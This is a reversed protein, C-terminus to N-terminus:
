QAKTATAPPRPILVSLRTGGSIAAEIHLSGGVTLMREELGILGLSAPKARDKDTMGRGDDTVFIQIRDGPAEIIEVEVITAHAHKAVNTLAEQIVRFACNAGEPSLKSLLEEGRLGTGIGTQKRFWEVHAHTANPGEKEDVSRRRLNVALRRVADQSASVRERLRTAAAEVRKADDSGERIDDLEWGVITLEQGIGEHLQRSIEDCVHSEAMEARERLGRVQSMLTAVEREHRNRLGVMWTVSWVLVIAVFTNTLSIWEPIGIDADTLYTIIVLASTVLAMRSSMVAHPVWLCAAPVLVYLASAALGRPTLLDVLFVTVALTAPMWNLLRKTDPPGFALSLQTRQTWCSTTM